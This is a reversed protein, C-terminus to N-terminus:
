KKTITEILIKGTAAAETILKLCEKSSRQNMKNILDLVKNSDVKQKDILETFVANISRNDISAYRRFLIFTGFITIVISIIVLATWPGVAESAYTQTIYDVSVTVPKSGINVLLIQYKEGNIVNKITSFNNIIKSKEFQASTYNLPNTSNISNNEVIYINIIGETTFNIKLILTNGTSTFNITEFGNPEITLQQKIMQNEPESAVVSSFNFFLISTLIIMYYIKKMVAGENILHYQFNKLIKRKKNKEKAEV